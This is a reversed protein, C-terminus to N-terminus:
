YSCGCNRAIEWSANENSFFISFRLKSSLIETSSAKANDQNSLTYYLCNGTDSSREGGILLGGTWGLLNPCIRSGEYPANRGLIDGEADGPALGMHGIPLGHM